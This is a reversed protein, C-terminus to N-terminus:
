LTEGVRAAIAEAIRRIDAAQNDCDFLKIAEDRTIRLEARAVDAAHTVSGDPLIVSAISEEDSWKYGLTETIHGAVCFATDCSANGMFHQARMYAPLRYCGQFWERKEPPLTEQWEVWEVENRLLPLNPEVATM